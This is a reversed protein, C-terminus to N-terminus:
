WVSSFTNSTAFTTERLNYCMEEQTKDKLSFLLATKEGRQLPKCTGADVLTGHLNLVKESSCSLNERFFNCHSSSEGAM